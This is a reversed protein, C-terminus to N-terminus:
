EGDTQLEVPPLKTVSGARRLRLRAGSLARKGELPDTPPKPFAKFPGAADCLAPFKPKQHLGVHWSTNVILWM